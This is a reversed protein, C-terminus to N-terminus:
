WRGHDTELNPAVLDVPNLSAKRTVSCQTPREEMEIRRRGSIGREANDRDLHHYGIGLAPRAASFRFLPQFDRNIDSELPLCLERREVAGLVRSSWLDKV